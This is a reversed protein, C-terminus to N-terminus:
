LHFLALGVIVYLALGVAAGLLGVLSGTVIFLGDNNALGFGIILIGLAPITNTGPFPVIMVLAIVTIALGVILVLPRKRSVSELRPKSFREVRRMLPVGRKKIFLVMRASLRRGRVRQPISPSSRGLMIQLALGVILLAFPIAYGGAPIPLAAPLALVVFLFGYGRQSLTDLFEGLGIGDPNADILEALENSLKRM